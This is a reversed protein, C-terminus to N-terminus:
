ENDWAADAALDELYGQIIAERDVSGPDILGYYDEPSFSSSRTYVGGLHAAELEAYGQLQLGCAPCAFVRPSVSQRVVISDEEHSIREPGFAEGKVTGVSGCAPCKVRHHREQALHLGEREASEAAAQRDAEPRAEFAARRSVIEREVRQRVQTQVESLIQEAVRAEDPGFLSNLTEGLTGTLVSCVRYFGTLWHRPPYEDFAASGSHLEDNRRNALAVAVKYEDETFEDFLARCLAFVRVAGISRRLVTESGRNLAHLLYRHDKDSEALLTPSISALAARALLELALSCWLGFQPDERSQEFARECYLRAKAWLPDREWSM